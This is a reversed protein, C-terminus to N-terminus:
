GLRLASPLGSVVSVYVFISVEMFMFVVVLTRSEPGPMIFTKVLTDWQRSSAPLLLMNAQFSSM